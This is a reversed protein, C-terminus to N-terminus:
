VCYSLELAGRESGAAFDGSRGVVDRGYGRVDWNHQKCELKILLPLLNRPCSWDFRKAGSLMLACAHHTVRPLISLEGIM